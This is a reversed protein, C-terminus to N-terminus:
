SSVGTPPWDAGTPVNGHRLWRKMDAIQAKGDPREVASHATPHRRHDFRPRSDFRMDIGAKRMELLQLSDPNIARRWPFRLFVERRCILPYWADPANDALISTDWHSQGPTAHSRGLELLGMAIADGELVVDALANVFYVDDIGPVIVWEAACEEVAENFWDWLQVSSKPRIVRIFDPCTIPQDTVVVVDAPRPNLMEMSAVFDNGFREWYDGWCAVAIGIRSVPVPQLMDRIEAMVTEPTISAIAACRKECVASNYGWGGWCGACPVVRREASLCRVSPYISFVADTTRGLLALTPRNMTGALHAPGSDNGVILKASKMLAAQHVWRVPGMWEPCDSWRNDNNGIIRMTLGADKLSQYLARWHEHPWTRSLQTCHPYLLVDAQFSKSWEVAEDPIAVTPRRPDDTIGLRRARFVQVPPSGVSHGHAVYEPGATHYGTCGDNPAIVDQGLIRLLEAKDGSACMRMRRNSLKAGEAIWAATIADGYGHAMVNITLVQRIDPSPNRRNRLRQWETHARSTKVESQTLPVSSPSIAQERYPCKNCSAVSVISREDDGTLEVPALSKDTKGHTVCWDASQFPSHCAYIALRQENPNDCCPSIIM